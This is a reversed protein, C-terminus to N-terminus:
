SLNEIKLGIVAVPNLYRARITGYFLEEFDEGPTAFLVVKHKKKLLDKEFKLVAMGRLTELARKLSKYLEEDDSVVLVENNSEKM